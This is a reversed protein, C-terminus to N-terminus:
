CRVVELGNGQDQIMELCHPQETAAGCSTKSEEDKVNDHKSMAPADCTKTSPDQVDQVLSSFPLAKEANNLQFVTKVTVDDVTHRRQLHSPNVGDKTSKFPTSNGVHPSSVPLDDGHPSELPSATSLPPTIFATSCPVQGFVMASKVDSVDMLSAPMSRRPIPIPTPDDQGYSGSTQSSPLGGGDCLTISDDVFGAWNVIPERPTRVRDHYVLTAADADGNQTINFYTELPAARSSLQPNDPLLRPTRDNGFREENCGIVGNRCWLFLM